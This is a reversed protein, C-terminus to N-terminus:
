PKSRSIQKHIGMLEPLAASGYWPHLEMVLRGSIVAPDTATLKEAEETSSTNFVYFGRIEGQDLFPGALVLMGEEALRNINDLHARQIRAAEDPDHSRDPGAKLFAMIYTKMGYDDAGLRQALLSDYESTNKEKIQETTEPKNICAQFLFSLFLVCPILPTFKNMVTQPKAFTAIKLVFKM